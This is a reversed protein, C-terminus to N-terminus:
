ASRNCCCSSTWLVSPRKRPGGRLPACTFTPSESYGSLQERAVRTSSGDVHGSANVFTCLARRQEEPLPSHSPRRACVSRVRGAGPRLADADTRQRGGQRVGAFDCLEEHQALHDPVVSHADSPTGHGSGARPMRPCQFALRKFATCFSARIARTWFGSDPSQVRRRRWIPRRTSV